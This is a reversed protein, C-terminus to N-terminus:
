IAIKGKPNLNDLLSGVRNEKSKNQTQKVYQHLIVRTKGAQWAAIGNLVLQITRFRECKKVLIWNVKKDCSGCTQNDQARERTKRTKEFHFAQLFSKVSSISPSITTKSASTHRLANQCLLLFFFYGVCLSWLLDTEATKVRHAVCCNTNRLPMSCLSWICHRRERHM